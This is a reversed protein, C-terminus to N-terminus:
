YVAGIIAIGIFAALDTAISTSLAIAAYVLLILGMGVTLINNWRKTLFEEKTMLARRGAVVVRNSWGSGPM